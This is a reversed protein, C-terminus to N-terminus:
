IVTPEVVSERTQSYLYYLKLVLAFIGGILGGISGSLFAIAIWFLDSIALIKKIQRGQTFGIAYTTCIVAATPLVCLFGTWNWATVLLFQAIFYVFAFRKLVCNDAPIKALTGMSLCLLLSQMAAVPVGLMAYHIAWLLSALVSLGQVIKDSSILCLSLSCTLAIYGICQVISFLAPSTTM